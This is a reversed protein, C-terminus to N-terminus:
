TSRYEDLGQFRQFSDNEKIFINSCLLIVFKHLILLCWISPVTVMIFLRKRTRSFSIIYATKPRYIALMKSSFHSVNYIIPSFHSFFTKKKFLHIFAIKAQCVFQVVSSRSYILVVPVLITGTKTM